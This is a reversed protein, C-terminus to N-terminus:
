QLAPPKAVVTPETAGAMHALSHTRLTPIYTHAHTRLTHIHMDTCCLVGSGPASGYAEERKKRCRIEGIHMRRFCAPARRGPGLVCRSAGGGSTRTVRPRRLAAMVDRLQLRSSGKSARRPGPAHARPWTACILVCLVSYMRLVHAGESGPEGRVRTAQPPPSASTSLAPGRTLPPCSRPMTESGSAHALPTSFSPSLLPLLSFLSYYCPFLLPGVLRNPVGCWSGGLTTVPIRDFPDAGALSAPRPLRSATHSRTHTQPLPTGAPRRRLPWQDAERAPERARQSPSCRLPSTVRRAACTATFSM